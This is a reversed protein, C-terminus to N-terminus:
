RRKRRFTNIYDTNSIVRLQFSGTMWGSELQNQRQIKPNPWELQYFPNLVTLYGLFYGNVYGLQGINRSSATPNPWDYTKSEGPASFFQDQGILTLKYSDTHTRLSIPYLPGRPNPWDYDPGMGPPGFFQDKGSLLNNSRDSYNEAQTRVSVGSQDRPEIKTILPNRLVTAM